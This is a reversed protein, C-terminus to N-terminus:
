KSPAEMRWDEHPLSTKRFEGHSDVVLVVLTPRTRNEDGSHSELWSAIITYTEGRGNFCVLKKGLLNQNLENGTIM